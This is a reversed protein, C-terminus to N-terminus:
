KRGSSALAIIQAAIQGAADPRDLAQMAQRMKALRSRDRMLDLVLPSLKQPLLEDALTLAAGQAELYDANVKQYRWAHPYPVLIAPVGFHPYEGLSSAGARSVILDAIRLAAGMEHLYPFARYRAALAPPLDDGAHEFQKWTRAGVLHIIQMEPLLDPLAATLARNLSLAGLSGGTVLLVPLDDSFGFFRYAEAPSWRDLDARLPYGTTVVREPHPFYRRSAEAPVAIRDAFRALFKLALGPEIDPVFVATPIRRGALAVPAAVYGGTFFLADPRFKGLVERAAAYGRALQALNGPIAKWGVGHVGAAPITTFAVGARQVLDAEMGGESGVWLADVPHEAALHELVALAPYM